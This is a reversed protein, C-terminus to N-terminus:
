AVRKRGEEQRLAAFQCGMRGREKLSTFGDLIKNFLLLVQTVRRRGEQRLPELNCGMRGRENASAINFGQLAQTVRKRGEDQRLPVLQCGMRGREKAPTFGDLIKNAM